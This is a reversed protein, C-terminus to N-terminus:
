NSNQTEGNMYPAAHVKVKKSKLIDKIVNLIIVNLHGYKCTSNEIVM